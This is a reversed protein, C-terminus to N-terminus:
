RGNATGSCLRKRNMSRSATISSRRRDPRAGIEKSLKLFNQVVGNAESAPFVKTAASFHENIAVLLDSPRGDHLFFVRQGLGWLPTSRFEDPGAAWQIIDDALGPGM